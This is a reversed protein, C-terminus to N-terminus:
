EFVSDRNIIHKFEEEELYEKYGEPKLVKGKLERIDIWKFVAEKDELNPIEERLYVQDNKFKMELIFLIEQCRNNTYKSIYFNEVVAKSKVFEIEEAMEEKIERKLAQISTECVKVRGGPLTLYDVNKNEEILIKNKFRIIAAVRYNLLTDDIKWTIDM